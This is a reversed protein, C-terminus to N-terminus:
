RSILINSAIHRAVIKSAIFPITGAQFFGYFYEIKKTMNKSKLGARVIAKPYLFTRIMPAVEPIPLVSASLTTWFPDFRITVPRLFSFSSSITWFYPLSLTEAFVNSTMCSSCTLDGMDLSTHGWSVHGIFIFIGCNAESITESFGSRSQMKTLEPIWRGKSKELGSVTSRSMKSWSSIM